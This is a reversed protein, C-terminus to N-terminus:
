MDLYGGLKWYHMMTQHHQGMSLNEYHKLSVHMVCLLFFTFLQGRTAAIRSPTAPCNVEQQLWLDPHQQVTPRKNCGYTQTNSSLQGRAAAILCTTIPRNVEQQLWLDPHQHVTSMKNCCYTLTNSSLLGKTADMLQPTAPCNAEQHLWLDPYMNSPQGRTAAM